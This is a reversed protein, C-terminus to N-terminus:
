EGVVRHLSLDEETSPLLIEADDDSPVRPPHEVYARYFVLGALVLVLSAIVSWTLPVAHAEGMVAPLAFAV